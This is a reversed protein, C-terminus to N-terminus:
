KGSGRKVRVLKIDYLLPTYGAIIYYGTPGYALDSPIVLLAEGGVKMYTIGEDFGTIMWGEDVPFVLSDTRTENSDFTTEDLFKGTYKVYATDHKVPMIGTGVVVDHYYLGSSKHEYNMTSNATMYKQILDKEEKVYKKSPDCSVLSIMLLVAPLLLLTNTNKKLM